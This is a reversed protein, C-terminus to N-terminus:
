VKVVPVEEYNVPEEELSRMAVSFQVEKGAFMKYLPTNMLQEKSEEKDKYM